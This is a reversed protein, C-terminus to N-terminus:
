SIPLWIYEGDTSKIDKWTPLTNRTSILQEYTILGSSYTPWPRFNAVSQWAEKDILIGCYGFSKSLSLIEPLGVGQASKIPLLANYGPSGGVAGSSWRYKDSILAFRLLRYAPYGPPEYPYHMLPLQLISCGATATIERQVMATSDILSSTAGIKLPANNFFLFGPVLFFVVFISSYKRHAKWNRQLGVASMLVLLIIVFISFRAFGRLIASVTISFITGFGGTLSWLLSIIALSLITRIHKDEHSRGNLSKQPQVPTRLIQIVVGVSVFLLGWPIVGTWGEAFMGTANMLDHWHLVGGSQSGSLVRLIWDEISNPYPMLYHLFTTSNVISAWADRQSFYNVGVASYKALIAPLAVILFALNGSVITWFMRKLVDINWDIWCKFFVFTAIVFVYGLAYYSYWAGNLAAVIILFIQGRRELTGEIQRITLAFLLPLLFYSSITIAGFWLGHFPPMAIILGSVCSLIPNVNLIRAAFYGSIGALSFTLLYLLNLGFFVSGGSLHSLIGAVFTPGSDVSFYAYNLNQGFPAGLNHNILPTGKAFSMAATAYLLEDGNFLFPLRINHLNFGFRHWAFYFPLFVCLLPALIDQCKSDIRKLIASM